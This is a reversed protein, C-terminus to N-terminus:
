DDEDFQSHDQRDTHRHRDTQRDRHGHTETDTQTDIHGHTQTDTHLLDNGDDASFVM